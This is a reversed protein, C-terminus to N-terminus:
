NITYAVSGVASQRDAPAIAIAKITETQTVRIAGSYRTSATTPTAGNTTYYIAAGATADKITVTQATSYTGGALSFTPTATLPPVVKSAPKVATQTITFVATAVASNHAASSIAFAKLTVSSSITIPGTYRASGTTPTAGNTTYYIVAGSTADKITVTQAV